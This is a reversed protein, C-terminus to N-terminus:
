VPTFFKFIITITDGEVLQLQSDTARFVSFPHGFFDLDHRGYFISNEIKIIQIHEHVEFKQGDRIIIKQIPLNKIFAENQPIDFGRVKNTTTIGVPLDAPAAVEDVSEQKAPTSHAERIEVRGNKRAYLYAM